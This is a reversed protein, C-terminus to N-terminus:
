CAPACVDKGEGAAAFIEDGEVPVQKEIMLEIKSGDVSRAPPKNDRSNVTRNESGGAQAELVVEVYSRGVTM